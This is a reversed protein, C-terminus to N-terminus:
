TSSADRTNLRCHSLSLSLSLTNFLTASLQPPLAAAAACPALQAYNMTVVILFSKWAFSEVRITAGAREGERERMRSLLLAVRRLRSM